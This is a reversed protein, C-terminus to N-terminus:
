TSANGNTMPQPKRNNRINSLIAIIRVSYFTWGKKWYWLHATHTHACTCSTTILHLVPEKEASFSLYCFLSIFPATRTPHGFCFSACLFNLSLPISSDGGRLNPLPPLLPSQISSTASICDASGTREEESTRLRSFQNHHHHHHHHHQVRWRRRNNSPTVPYSHIPLPWSSVAAPQQFM